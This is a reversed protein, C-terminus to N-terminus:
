SRRVKSTGPYKMSIDCTGIEITTGIDLDDFLLGSNSVESICRNCRNTYVLISTEPTSPSANTKISTTHIYHVLNHPAFLYM